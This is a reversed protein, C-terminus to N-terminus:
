TRQRANALGRWLWAILLVGALSFWQLAYGFHRAPSFGQSPRQPLPLAGVPQLSWAVLPALPRQLWGSAEDMDLRVILKPWGASAEGSTLLSGPPPSLEVRLGDPALAAKASLPPLASAFDRRHGIAPLWGRFVLVTGGGSLQFPSIVALGPAGNKPSNDLLLDRGQVFHGALVARARELAGAQGQTPDSSFLPDSSSLDAASSIQVAPAALLDLLTQKYSARQLQWVGLAVTLPLLLLVLLTLTRGPAFSRPASDPTQM